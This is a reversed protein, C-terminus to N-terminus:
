REDFLPEWEEGSERGVRMIQERLDDRNLRQPRYSVAYNGTDEDFVVDDVGGIRKLESCVLTRTNWDDAAGRLDIMDTRTTAQRQQPPEPRRPESSGVCGPAWVVVAAALLAAASPSCSRTM